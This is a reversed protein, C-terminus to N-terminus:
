KQHFIHNKNTFSDVVYDNIIYITYYIGFSFFNPLFDIKHGAFLWYPVRSPNGKILKTTFFLFFRFIIKKKKKKKKKLFSLNDLCYIYNYIFFCIRSPLWITVAWWLMLPWGCHRSLLHSHPVQGTAVIVIGRNYIGVERGRFKMM